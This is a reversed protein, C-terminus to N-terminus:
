TTTSVGAPSVEHTVYEPGAAITQWALMARKRDEGWHYGGLAGSKRLVNHCPILWGIPNAGVASGVARTAGPIGISEALEAYTTPGASGLNVLAQWVQLQFNTGGVSLGLHTARHDHAPGAANRDAGSRTWIQGALASAQENDSRFQAREWRARLRGIAAPEDAHEVFSLHCIGRSTSAILARGFPTNCFGHSVRTGQGKEKLEGPTMAHLTVILDHLRGPGSLGVCYAADLVSRKSKLAGHAAGATVFALYQKPTIGAWRRFLRNFHFESLDVHAAIRSLRPQQPFHSDIFRIARAIRAFDRSDVFPEFNVSM